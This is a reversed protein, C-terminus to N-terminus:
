PQLERSRRHTLWKAFRSVVPTGPVPPRNQLVDPRPEWDFPCDKRLPLREGGETAPRTAIDASRNCCVLCQLCKLTQVDSDFLKQCQINIGNPGTITANCLSSWKAIQFNNPEMGVLSQPIAIGIPLQRCESTDVFRIETIPEKEDHPKVFVFHGMIYNTDPPEDGLEVVYNKYQALKDHKDMLFHSVDYLNEVPM